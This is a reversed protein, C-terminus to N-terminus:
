EFMDYKRCLIETCQIYINHNMDLYFNVTENCKYSRNGVFSCRHVIREFSYVFFSFSFTPITSVLPSYTIFFVEFDLPCTPNITELFFHRLRVPRGAVLKRCHKGMEISRMPINHSYQQLRQTSQSM